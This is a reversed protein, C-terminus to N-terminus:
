EYLNKDTERLGNIINKDLEKQKKAILQLKADKLAAEKIENNRKYASVIRNPLFMCFVFGLIIIFYKAIITFWYISFNQIVNGFVGLLAMLIIYCVCCITSIIISKKNINFSKMKM